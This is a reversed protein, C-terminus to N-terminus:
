ARSPGQESFMKGLGALSAVSGDLEVSRRGAKALAQAYSATLQPTGIVLVPEVADHEQFLSLAGFADAGILLGSIWSAAGEPSLQQDLRLSRAQFVQHLLM